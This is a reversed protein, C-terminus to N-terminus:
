AGAEDGLPSQQHLALKWNNGRKVYVSSALTTYNGTEHQWRAIAKYTLIAVDSTLALVHVNEFHVEAWKRGETNEQRIASIAVDRSIVGTEPFVLLGDELVHTEYLAADNLWLKRETEQLQQALDTDPQMFINKQAPTFLTGYLTDPLPKNKICGPRKTL